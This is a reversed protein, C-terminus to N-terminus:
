PDSWLLREYGGLVGRGPHATRSARPCDGADRSCPRPLAALGEWHARPLRRYESRAAIRYFILPRAGELGLLDRLLLGGQKKNVM